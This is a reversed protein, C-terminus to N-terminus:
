TPRTAAPLQFQVARDFVDVAQQRVTSANPTGAEGGLTSGTRTVIYPDTTVNIDVASGSSHFAANPRWGITPERLGCWAEFTGPDGSQAFADRLTAEVRSLIEQMVPNVGASCSQGLFVPQVLYSPPM